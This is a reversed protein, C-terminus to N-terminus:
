AISLTGFFFSFSLTRRTFPENQMRLRQISGLHCNELHGTTQVFSCEKRLGECPTILANDPHAIYMRANVCSQFTWFNLNGPWDFCFLTMEEPRLRSSKLLKAAWSYHGRNQKKARNRLKLPNFFLLSHSRAKKVSYLEKYTNPKALIILILILWWLQFLIQEWILDNLLM